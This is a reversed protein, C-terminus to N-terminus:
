KKGRQVLRRNMEDRVKFYLAPYDRGWSTTYKTRIEMWKAMLRKDTWAKISRSKPKSPKKAM